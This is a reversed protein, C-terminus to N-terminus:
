FTQLINVSMTKCDLGDAVVVGGGVVDFGVEDDDEGHVGVGDSDTSVRPSDTLVTVTVGVARGDAAGASTDCVGLSFLLLPPPRPVPAATPNAMPNIASKAM